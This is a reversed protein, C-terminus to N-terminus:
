SKDRNLRVSSNKEICMKMNIVTSSSQYAGLEFVLFM